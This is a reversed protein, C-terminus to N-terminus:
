LPSKREPIWNILADKHSCWGEKARCFVSKKKLIKKSKGQSLFDELDKRM